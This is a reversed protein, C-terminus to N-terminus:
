FGQRALQYTGYLDARDDRAYTLFLITRDADSLNPRSRHPALASFAVIDGAEGIVAEFRDFIAPDPDAVVGPPTLLRHHHGPAFELPGSAAGCRDILVALSVIREGSIGLEHWYAADQHVTYGPAGAPKRIFKDKMLQCPGGLLTAALDIMRPTYQSM